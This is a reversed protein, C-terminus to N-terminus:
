GEDRESRVRRWEGMARLVLVSVIAVGGAAFVAGAVAGVGQATGCNGHCTLHVFSSAILGGALGALVIAAFALVRARVSPLASLRRDDSVAPM